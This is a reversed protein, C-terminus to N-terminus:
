FTEKILELHIKKENHYYKELTFYENILSINADQFIKKQTSNIDKIYNLDLKSIDNFNLGSKKDKILFKNEILNSTICFIGCAMSELLVKSLGEFKSPLIIYSYQNLITPLQENDVPNFFNVNKSNKIIIKKVAINVEGYLDIQYNKNRQFLEILGSINKEYSIRGIYLFKGNRTKNFNCFLSTDIFNYILNVKKNYKYNYFKKEFLNTVSIIDASRIAINSQISNLIKRFLGLKLVKDRKLINYGTRLYFKKKYIKKILVGLLSGDTQNTKIINCNQKIKNFFFLFYLTTIINSLFKKELIKPKNIVIINQNMIKNNKLTRSLEADAAEYTFFYIKKYFNEEIMKNYIVLERKLNGVKNWTTLGVGRTFILLLNM